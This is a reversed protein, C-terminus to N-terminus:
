YKLIVKKRVVSPLITAENLYEKNMDDMIKWKVVRSEENNHNHIKNIM